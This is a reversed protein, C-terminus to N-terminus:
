GHSYKPETKWRGILNAFKLCVQIYLWCSFLWHQMNTAKKYSRTDGPPKAWARQDTRYKPQFNFSLVMNTWHVIFIDKPSRAQWYKLLTETGPEYSGHTSPSRYGSRNSTRIRIRADSLLDFYLVQNRDYTVKLYLINCRLSILLDFKQFSLKIPIKFAASSNLDPNTICSYPDPDTDFRLDNGPVLRSSEM